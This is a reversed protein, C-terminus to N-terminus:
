NIIEVERNFLGEVISKEVELLRLIALAIFEESFREFRRNILEVASVVKRMGSVSWKISLHHPM